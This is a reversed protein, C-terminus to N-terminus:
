VTLERLLPYSELLVVQGTLRPQSLTHSQREIVRADASLIM